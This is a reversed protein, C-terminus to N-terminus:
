REAPLTPWKDQAGKRAGTLLRSAGRKLDDAIVISAPVLLLTFFTAILVGFGLSVAMPIVMQAQASSDLMVPTLGAFTTLSTLMIARFRSQGAQVAAQDLPLGKDRLRNLFTVLVLSDNVVVGACAMVGILSFMSLTTGTVLHGIIAGVYGFPIVIMIFVPQLYSRLPIALLTFISLLAVLLGRALGALAERRESEEGDFVFSVGPFEALLDPLVVGEMDTLIEGANASGEDLDATITVTRYRDRRLISSPGRDEVVSAVAGFPVATGDPLRIRMNEVDALSLRESAPYRVMVKVEDRGRQIRQAEAGYFAQRVQRGVNELSLGLAEAGPLIALKLERKGDRNSDRIDFVGPYEGLKESVRLAAQGLIEVDDGRLEIAIPDGFHHHVGSFKLEEVGPISGTLERWRNAIDGAHLSRVESPSLEAAVMGLHTQGAAARGGPRGGGRQSGVISMVHQFMPPENSRQEEALQARLREASEEIRRIAKQTQWAPTGLPMTLSARVSDAEMPAMMVTKMHGSGILALAVFFLGFAAAATVYRREVCATVAPAYINETVHRLWVAVRKQVRAWAISIKRKPTSGVGSGHALHSPLVLKSEILSFGLAIMMVGSIGLAMFRMQGGILAFPAFAAVTTLVGFIVPVAVEEAGEIAAEIPNDPNREQHTYINEGTVIADDVLIGLAMIFSFLTMINIDIDFAPMLALAGLVSVPVGMAVWFAVRLKLFFALLVLVLVFGGSANRLMMGIRDALFRSEDDWLTLSLGEPLRAAALAVHAKVTNAVDLAHQDGVRFVKVLVAPEGDFRAFKATEEFGDRVSAVDGVVVRSGDDRTVLPIAAFEAGRYAQGETRLLIEGGESKVSGGPMDLSSRRVALIVDDFRLGYRQLATESVEISIEYPRIASLTVKSVGPLSALEDRLGHGLETLTREDADGHLAIDIVARSWVVESVVPKETEEPLTRIGNIRSNLETLARSMEYDDELELMLNTAGENASAVLEKIGEVDQVEEELRTTVSSEVDEPSAGPYVVTASVYNIEFDPMITQKITPVSLLGAIMIGFMLLNAAVHNRAFWEIWGTM